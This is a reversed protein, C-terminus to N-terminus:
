RWWQWGALCAACSDDVRRPVLPNYRLPGANVVFACLGLPGRILVNLWLDVRIERILILL